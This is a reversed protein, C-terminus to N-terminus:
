GIYPAIICLLHSVAPPKRPPKSEGLADSSEEVPPPPPASKPAPKAAPPAKKSAAAAPQPAGRGPGGAGAKAKVTAKEFAEMVKAKRVDALGEMVPGLQREGVMKMLTGLCTAAENRNGEFSDEMIGALQESLPKVDGQSIPTPTTSLCRGLFKLTGEKVQPNKSGLATQIEGLVDSLSTQMGKFSFKPHMVSTLHTSVCNFVADLAVGIADTVNAKREKLRELMPAVVVDKSRAFHSGLGNALGEICGAAGMVCTINADKQVMTGLTKALDGLEGAPQIRLSAKLVALM